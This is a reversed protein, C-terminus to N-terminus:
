RQGERGSGLVGCRRGLMRGDRCGDYAGIHHEGGLRRPGRAVADRGDLCERGDSIDEISRREAGRRGTDIGQGIGVAMDQNTCIHRGRLGVDDGRDVQGARGAGLVGGRHGQM